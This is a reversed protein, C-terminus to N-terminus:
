EEQPLADIKARANRIGVHAQELTWLSGDKNRGCDCSPCVAPGGLSLSGVADDCYVCLRKPDFGLWIETGDSKRYQWKQPM